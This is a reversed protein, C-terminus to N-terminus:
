KFSLGTFNSIKKQVTPGLNEDLYKKKYEGGLGDINKFKREIDIGIQVGSTFIFRDDSLEIRRSNHYMGNIFLNPVGKERKPNPTIRDKWDSYRQAAEKTKFFPDELYTPFINEAKNTKGDYLQENNIKLLEDKTENLSEDIVKDTNLSKFRESLSSITLM